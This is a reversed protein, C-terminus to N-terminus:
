ATRRERTISRAAEPISRWPRAPNLVHLTAATLTRPGHTQGETTPIEGTELLAKFRRLDQTMQFGPNSGMRKLIQAAISASGPPYHMHASVITGRGSPAARFHVAGQPDPESEAASRWSIMFGEEDAHMEIDTETLAGARNRMVWVSRGNEAAHASVIHSMFLPLNASDRWFRYADQPSCQVLVSGHSFFPESKRKGAYILAGGLGALAYRSTGKRMLGLLVLGSGLWVQSKRSAVNPIKCTTTARARSM